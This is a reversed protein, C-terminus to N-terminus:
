CQRLPLLLTTCSQIITKLKIFVSILLYFTLPPFIYIKTIFIYVGLFRNYFLEALFAYVSFNDIYHIDYGSRPTLNLILSFFDSLSNKYFFEYYIGYSITLVCFFLVFIAITTKQRRKLYYPLLLLATPKWALSLNWAIGSLKDKKAIALAIAALFFMGALHNFQGMVWESNLSFFSLWFFIALSLIFFSKNIKKWIYYLSYISLLHLAISYYLYSKYGAHPTTFFITTWGWVIASTPFYNMVIPWPIVLYRWAEKGYMSFGNFLNFARQYLSFYDEGRAACLTYGLNWCDNGFIHWLYLLLFEIGLIIFVVGFVYEGIKDKHEM